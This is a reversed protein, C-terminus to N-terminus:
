IIAVLRARRGTYNEGHAYGGESMIRYEDINSTHIPALAPVLGAGVRYPIHLGSRLLTPAPSTGARARAGVKTGARARPWMCDVLHIM